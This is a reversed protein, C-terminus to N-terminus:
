VINPRAQLCFRKALRTQTMQGVVRVMKGRIFSLRTESCHINYAKAFPTTKWNIMLRISNRLNQMM